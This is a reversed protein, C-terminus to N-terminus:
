KSTAAKNSSPSDMIRSEVTPLEGTLWCIAAKSPAVVAVGVATGGVGVLWISAATIAGGMGLWVGDGVAVAVCVAVGDGLGVTVAVGVLM